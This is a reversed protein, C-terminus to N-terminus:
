RSCYLGEDLDGTQVVDGIKWAPSKRKSGHGSRLGGPLWDTQWATWTLDTLISASTIKSNGRLFEGMQPRGAGASLKSLLPGILCDYEDPPVHGGGIPGWENLLDRLYTATTV